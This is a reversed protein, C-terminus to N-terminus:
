DHLVRESVDAHAVLSLVMVSRRNREARSGARHGVLGPLRGLVQDHLRLGADLLAVEHFFSMDVELHTFEGLLLSLKGLGALVVLPEIQTSSYEIIVNPASEGEVAEGDDEELPLLVIQTVHIMALMGLLGVIVVLKNCDIVTPYARAKEALVMSSCALEM